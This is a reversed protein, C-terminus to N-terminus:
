EKVELTTKNCSGVRVSPWRNIVFLRVEECSRQTMFVETRVAKGDVNKILFYWLVVSVIGNM